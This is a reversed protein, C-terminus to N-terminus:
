VLLAHRIHQKQQQQRLQKGKKKKKGRESVSFFPMKLLINRHMQLRLLLRAVVTCSQCLMVPIIFGLM